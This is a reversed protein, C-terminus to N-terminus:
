SGLLFLTTTGARRFYAASDIEQFRDRLEMFTKFYWSLIKYMHLSTTFPKEEVESIKKLGKHLCLAHFAKWYIVKWGTAM